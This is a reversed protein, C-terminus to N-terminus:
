LDVEVEEASQGAVDKAQSLLIRIIASLVDSVGTMNDDFLCIYPKSLLVTM